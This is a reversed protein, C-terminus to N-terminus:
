IIPLTYLLRSELKTLCRYVHIMESQRTIHIHQVDRYYRFVYDFCHPLNNEAFDNM